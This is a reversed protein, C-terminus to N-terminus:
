ASKAKRRTPLSHPLPKGRSVDGFHEQPTLYTSFRAIKENLQPLQSDARAARPLFGGAALGGVALGGAGIKLFYRRTVEAHEFLFRNSTPM